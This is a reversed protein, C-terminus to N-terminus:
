HTGRLRDKHALAFEDLKEASSNATLERQQFLVRLVTNRGNGICSLCVCCGGFCPLCLDFM